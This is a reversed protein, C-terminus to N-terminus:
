WKEMVTVIEIENAREIFVLRLNRKGIRGDATIRKEGLISLGEGRVGRAILWRVDARALRRVKLMKAAHKSYRIAKYTM